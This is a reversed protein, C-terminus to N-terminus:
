ANPKKRKLEAEKRKQYESQMDLIANARMVDDLSWYTELEQLTCVKEFVLRWM